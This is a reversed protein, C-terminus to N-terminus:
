RGPRTRKDMEGVRRGIQSTDQKRQHRTLSDPSYVRVVRGSSFKCTNTHDLVTECILIDGCVDTETVFILHVREDLLADRVEMRKIGVVVFSPFRAFWERGGVSDPDDVESPEDTGINKEAWDASVLVDERSM